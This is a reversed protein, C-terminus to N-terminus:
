SQREAMGLRKAIIADVWRKPLNETLFVEWPRGSVVYRVKPRKVRLAKLVCEGVREPPLGNEGVERMVKLFKELYPAYPTDNYLETDIESAKDWIPTNISAPAIMVVKIGFLALERRLSETFGELGFKSVHYPSMFPYANRGGVSGVNLVRGPAGARGPETGLLPAFAKTANLVGLINVELVARMDDAPLHTIPGGIGIGANNVLGLLSRDGIAERVQEAGQQVAAEDTVDFYLPIFRQGFADALREGDSKKRVSGFVTLGNTIAVKAIGWGIGSSTGTVVIARDYPASM